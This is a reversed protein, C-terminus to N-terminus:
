KVHCTSERVILKPELIIKKNKRNIENSIREKLLLFAKQAMRKRSSHVTTMPPITYASFQINDFGVISIDEPIKVGRRNMEWIVGVALLDNFCVLSTPLPNIKLFDDVALVGGKIGFTSKIVLNPDFGIGFDKLAQKYGNMRHISHLLRYPRDLYAIHKHGLGILHKTADMMGKKYDLMVLDTDIDELVRNAVVVPVGTSVLKNIHTSNDTTPVIILGDVKKSRLVNIYELEKKHDYASYSIMVSFGSLFSINEIETALDAFYQNNNEPIILGITNTRRNRLSGAMLNPSYDLEKIAKNVRLILEDSVLRTKNIVHSVTAVSVGAKKAVDKITTM